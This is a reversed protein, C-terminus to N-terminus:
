AVKFIIISGSHASIDFIGLMSLCFALVNTYANSQMPVIFIVFKLDNVTSIQGDLLNDTAATECMSILCCEDNLLSDATPM